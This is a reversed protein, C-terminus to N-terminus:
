AKVIKERHRTVNKTANRTDIVLAAKDVLMAYDVSSHDTVIIVADAKALTDDNLPVSTMDLKHDRMKPAVPVYPDHYSVVAGRKQLLEIVHVARVSYGNWRAIHMAQQLATESAPTFDIGVLVTPRSATMHPTM